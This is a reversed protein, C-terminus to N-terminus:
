FRFFHRNKLLLFHLSNNGGATQYSVTYLISWWRCVPLTSLVFTPWCINFLLKLDPYNKLNNPLWKKVTCTVKIWITNTTLLRTFCVDVYQIVIYCVVVSPSIPKYITALDIKLMYQFLKARKTPSYCSNKSMNQCLEYM